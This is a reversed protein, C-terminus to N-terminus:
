QLNDKHDRPHETCIELLETFFLCNALSLVRMYLIVFIMSNPKILTSTRKYECVGESVGCEREM